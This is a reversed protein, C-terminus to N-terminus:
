PGEVPGPTRELSNPIELMKLLDDGQGDNEYGACLALVADWHFRARNQRSGFDFMAVGCASMEDRCWRMLDDQASNNDVLESVHAVIRGVIHAGDREILTVSAFNPYQNAYRAELRRAFKRIAECASPESQPMIAQPDLLLAVNMHVGYQQTLFSSRNIITKVDERQLYAAEVAGRDRVDSSAWCASEPLPPMSQTQAPRSRLIQSFRAEFLCLNIQHGEDNEAKARAWFQLLGDFREALEIPARAGCRVCLGAIVRARIDGIADVLPEVIVRQGLVDNYYAPVLVESDVPGEHRHCQWETLTTAQPFIVM